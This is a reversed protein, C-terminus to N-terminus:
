FYILDAEVTYEAVPRRPGEANNLVKGVWGCPLHGAEYITVLHTFFMPPHLESFRAEMCYMSLQTKVIPMASAPIAHKALADQVEGFTPELVSRIERSFENWQRHQDRDTRFLFGQLDGVAGQQLDKWANSVVSKRAEDASVQRTPHGSLSLKSQMGLDALWRIAQLREVAKELM